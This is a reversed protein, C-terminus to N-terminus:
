ALARMRQDHGTLRFMNAKDVRHVDFTSRVRHDSESTICILAATTSRSDNISCAVRALRLAIATQAPVLVIASAMTPRIM